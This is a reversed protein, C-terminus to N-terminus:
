WSDNNDAQEAYDAAALIALALSRAEPLTWMGTEVKVLEVVPVQPDDRNFPAVPSMVAGNMGANWFPEGGGRHGDPEPTNPQTAPM